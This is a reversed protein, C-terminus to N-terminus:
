KAIKPTKTKGTVAGTYGEMFSKVTTPWHNAATKRVTKKKNKNAPM